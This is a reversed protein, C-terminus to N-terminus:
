FSKVPILDVDHILNLNYQECLTTARRLTEPDNLAQPKHADVGFIIPVKTEGAIQLFLDSPYHRGSSLGLFNLELPMDSAVAKQCLRLYQTQAFSDDATCKLLDPHAIYTFYGTDIAEILENVYKELISKNDTPRGSYHAGIENEIFHQGLIIYDVPFGKYFDLLKDFYAPYYETEFGIKIDIKDKYEEKLKLLTDFYDQTLEPRMRFSSYYSGPFFYPTHDSFGLVKLGAAIACEIYQREDPAAHNCRHTHTHYNCYM